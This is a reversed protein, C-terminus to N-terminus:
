ININNKLIESINKIETYPIRLLKINNNVAYETKIKDNNKRLEFGIKGGLYEVERFHPEGDYEILMNKNDIFFDYKLPLKNKCDPFSKQIEFSVNNQNLWNSIFLEGKSKIKCKSCGRGNLHSNPKQEFVGHESCIIKVKVNNHKYEVLSYDYQNHHIVNSKTIFLETNSTNKEIGCISCGQGILHSNPKMNFIGHKACIIEVKSKSNIYKVLSYNYRHGHIKEARKIFEIGDLKVGGNCMPCGDGCLHRKPRQNFVGHINCIINVKTKNDIYKVMSYDYLDGYKQRAAVIFRETNGKGKGMCVPCNQGKLHNSAKQQFLGHEKCLLDVMTRSDIYNTMSYDYRDGHISKVKHIFEYTTLKKM